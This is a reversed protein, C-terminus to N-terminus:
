LWSLMRRVDAWIRPGFYDISPNVIAWRGGYRVELWYGYDVGHALIIEVMVGVTHEVDVHLGGRANTTRDTWPANAKMYNEIEPKWRQAIAYIGREIAARYNAALAPWARDPPVIWRFGAM